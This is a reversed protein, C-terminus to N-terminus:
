VTALDLATVLFEEGALVDVDAGDCASCLLLPYDGMDEVLGCSRCSIRARVYDVELRAGELETSTTVFSWCYVLTAPVIQRLQGIQLHIAEVPRGEARRTAISAISGCISLEHM